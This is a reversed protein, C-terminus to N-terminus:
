DTEANIDGRLLEDFSKYMKNGHNIAMGRIFLNDPDEYKWNSWVSYVKKGKAVFWGLEACTGSDYNDLRVVAFDCEEMAAIDRRYLEDLDFGIDANQELPNYVTFGLERLAKAEKNRENMEAETFLPGALYISKNNKMM